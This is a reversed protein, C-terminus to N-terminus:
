RYPSRQNLTKLKNCTTCAASRTSNAEIILDDTLLKAIKARTEWANQIQINHGRGGDHLVVQRLLLVLELDQQLLQLIVQQRPQGRRAPVEQAVSLQHLVELVGLGRRRFHLGLHCDSWVLPVM